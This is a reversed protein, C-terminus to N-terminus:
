SSIRPQIDAQSFTKFLRTEQEPSIGIGTDRITARLESEEPGLRRSTFEIYIEGTNTFKIANGVINILIQKLRIPDTKVLNAALGSTEVTLRLGKKAARPQLTSIVDSFLERLPIELSELEIRGAEVKALDLIDNILASLLEGNRKIMMAYTEREQDSLNPESILESFGIVTGLPTRIEHSMNALFDSKAKNARIAENRSGEVAKLLDRVEYQRKRDAIAATLVSLLTALRVPRELFTVNRLVSMASLAESKGEAIDGTTTLIVIPLYSWSPLAQLTASLEFLKQSQLTERALLLAGAGRPIERLLTDMDACIFPTLGNSELVRRTYESDKHTIALILIREEASNM